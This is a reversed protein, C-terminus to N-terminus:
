HSSLQRHWPHIMTTSANSRASISDFIPILPEVKELRRPVTGYIFGYVQCQNTHIADSGAVVEGDLCSLLAGYAYVDTVSAVVELAIGSQKLASGRLACLNAYM